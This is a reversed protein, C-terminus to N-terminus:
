SAFPLSKRSAEDLRDTPTVNLVKTPVEVKFGSCFGLVALSPDRHGCLLGQGGREFGSSDEDSSPPDTWRPSLLALARSSPDVM